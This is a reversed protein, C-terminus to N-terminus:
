GILAILWKAYNVFLLFFSCNVILLFRLQLIRLFVTAYNTGGFHM